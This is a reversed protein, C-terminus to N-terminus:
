KRNEAMEPWSLVLYSLATSARMMFPMSTSIIASAATPKQSCDTTKSNSHRNKIPICDVRNPGSLYAM